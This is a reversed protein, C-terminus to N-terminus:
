VHNEEKRTQLSVCKKEFLWPIKLGILLFQSEGQM